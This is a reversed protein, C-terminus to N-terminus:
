VGTNGSPLRLSFGLLQRRPRRGALLVTAAASGFLSLAYERTDDIVRPSARHAKLGLGDFLMYRFGRARRFLSLGFHVLLVVATLPDGILGLLGDRGPGEVWGLPVAFAGLWRDRLVQPSGGSVRGRTAPPRGLFLALVRRLLAGERGTGPGTPRTQESSASSRGMPASRRSPDVYAQARFGITSASAADVALRLDIIPRLPRSSAMKSSQTTPMPAITCVPSRAPNLTRVYAARTTATNTGTAPDRKAM